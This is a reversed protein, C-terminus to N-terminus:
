PLSSAGTRGGLPVERKGEWWGAAGGVVGEEEEEVSEVGVDDEVDACREGAARGSGEEETLASAREGRKAGLPSREGRGAGDTEEGREGREMTLGSKERACVTAAAERGGAGTGGRKWAVGVMEGPDEGEKSEGEERRACM